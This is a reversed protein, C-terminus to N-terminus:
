CKSSLTQLSSNFKFASLHKPTNSGKFIVITFKSSTILTNRSKLDVLHTEKVGGKKLLDFSLQNMNDWVEYTGHTNFMSILKNPFRDLLNVGEIRNAEHSSQSFSFLGTFLIAITTIKKM